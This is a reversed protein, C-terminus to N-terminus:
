WGRRHLAHGQHCLHGIQVQISSMEGVKSQSVVRCTHVCLSEGTLQKLFHHETFIM